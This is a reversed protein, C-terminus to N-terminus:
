RFATKRTSPPLCVALGVRQRQGGSMENVNKCTLEKVSVFRLLDKARRERLKRPEGYIADLPFEVNALATESDLLCVNQDLFGIRGLRFARKGEEDLRGLNVGDVEAVGSFGSLLGSVLNLLTSKGSGSEGVLAIFGKRPLDLNIDVLASDSNFRKNVKRLHILENM